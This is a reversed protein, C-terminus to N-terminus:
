TKPELMKARIRDKVDNVEHNILFIVAAAIAPLKKARLDAQLQLLMDLKANLAALEDPPLGCHPCNM